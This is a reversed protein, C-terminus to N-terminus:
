STKRRTGSGKISCTKTEKVTTANQLIYDKGRVGEAVKQEVEVEPNQDLLYAGIIHFVFYKSYTHFVFGLQFLQRTAILM